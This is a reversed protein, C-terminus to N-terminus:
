ARAFLSTSSGLFVSNRKYLNLLVNAMEAFQRLTLVQWMFPLAMAVLEHLRRLEVASSCHTDFALEDRQM